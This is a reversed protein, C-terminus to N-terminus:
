RGRCAAPSSPCTGASRRPRHRLRDLLFDVAVEPRELVRRRRRRFSVPSRILKEVVRGSVISPSVATHTCGVLPAAGKRKWRTGQPTDELVIGRAALEDRLRDSAAFDRNKRADNVSRSSGSSRTEHRRRRGPGRAVPLRRAGGPRRGRRGPRRPDAPPRGRRDEGGRHGRQGGQRLRLPGGPGRGREPRRGARRAFDRRLKEISEALRAGPEAEGRSPRPTSRPPLADRRGPAPRGRRRGAVRLHLQAEAPLPGVPLPLAPGAGLLRAGLLDPLTYQNGLSKSM